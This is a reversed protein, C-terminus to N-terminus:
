LVRVESRLRTFATTEPVSYRQSWSKQPTRPAGFRSEHGGRAGEFRAHGKERAMKPESLATGNQVHGGDVRGRQDLSRDLLAHETVHRGLDVSGDLFGHGLMSALTPLDGDVAPVADVDSPVM